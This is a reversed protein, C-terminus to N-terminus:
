WGRGVGKKMDVIAFKLLMEDAVVAEDVLTGGGSGGGNSRGGTLKDIAAPGALKSTVNAATKEVLKGILAGTNGSMDLVLNGPIPM